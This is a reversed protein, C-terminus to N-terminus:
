LKWVLLAYELNTQIFLCRLERSYIVLRRRLPENLQAESEQNRSLDHDCTMIVAWTVWLIHTQSGRQVTLQCYPTQKPSEGERNRGQEQEREREREFYTFVYFKKFAANFTKKFFLIYSPDKLSKDNFIICIVLHYIAPNQKKKLLKFFTRVAAQCGSFMEELHLLSYSVKQCHIVYFLPVRQTLTSIQSLNHWERLERKRSSLYFGQEVSMFWSIIWM